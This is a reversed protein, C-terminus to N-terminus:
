GSARVSGSGSDRNQADHEEWAQEIERRKRVQAVRYKLDDMFWYDAETLTNRWDINCWVGDIGELDSNDYADDLDECAPCGYSGNRPDYCMGRDHRHDEWLEDFAEKRWQEKEKAKASSKCVMSRCCGYPCEQWWQTAGIMRAM